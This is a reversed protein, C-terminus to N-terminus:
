VLKYSSLGFYPGTMHTGGYGMLNTVTYQYLHTLDTLIVCVSSRMYVVVLAPWTKLVFGNGSSLVDAIFLFYKM